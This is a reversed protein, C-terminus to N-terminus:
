TMLRRGQFTHDKLATIENKRGDNEPPQSPDAKPISSSSIKKKREWSGKWLESEESAQLLLAWKAPRKWPTELSECPTEASCCFGM